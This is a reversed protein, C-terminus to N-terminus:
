LMGGKDPMGRHASESRGLAAPPHPPPIREPLAGGSPMLESLHFVIGRCYVEGDEMIDFTAHPIDTKYTWPIGNEDWVAEITKCKVLCDKHHQCKPEENEANCGSPVGYIGDADLYATAGDYADLEDNIAGEFEMLDDSAGHVIVMGQAKALDRFKLMQAAYGEGQYEIGTIKDALAKAIEQSGKM